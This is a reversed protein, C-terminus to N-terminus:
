LLPLFVIVSLQFILLQGWRGQRSVGEGTTWDFIRTNVSPGDASAKTFIVLWFVAWPLLNLALKSQSEHLLELIFCVWKILLFALRM